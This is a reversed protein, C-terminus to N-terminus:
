PSPHHTHPVIAKHMILHIIEIPINYEESNQKFLWYRSIFFDKLVDIPTHKIYCLGDICLAFLLKDPSFDFRKKSISSFTHSSGIGSTHTINQDIDKKKYDLFFVSGQFDVCALIADNLFVPYQSILYKISRKKTIDYIFTYNAQTTFTLMTGDPSYCISAIHDNHLYFENTHSYMDPSYASVIEGQHNINIITDSTDIYSIIKEHPHCIINFGKTEHPLDFSQSSQTNTVTNKCCIFPINDASIALSYYFCPAEIRSLEQQTNLDYLSFDKKRKIALRTRNHNLVFDCPSQEDFMNVLCKETGINNIALCESSTGVVLTSNDIFALCHIKPLLPLNISQTNM